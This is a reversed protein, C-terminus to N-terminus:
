SKRSSPENHHYRVADPISSALYYWWGECPASPNVCALSGQKLVSDEGRHPRVYPSVLLDRVTNLSQSLHSVLIKQFTACQLLLRQLIGFMNHVLELGSFLASAPTEKILSPM